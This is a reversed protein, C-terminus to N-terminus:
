KLNMFSSDNSDFVYVDNFSEIMELVYCSDNFFDMNPDPDASMEFRTKCKAIENQEAKGKASMEAMEKSEELVNDENSFGVYLNWNVFALTIEDEDLTIKIERTDKKYFEKLKNYLKEISADSKDSLLILNNYYTFGM